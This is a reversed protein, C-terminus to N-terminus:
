NHVVEQLGVCNQAASGSDSQLRYQAAKAKEVIATLFHERKNRLVQVWIRPWVLQMTEVVISVLEPLLMWKNSPWHRPQALGDALPSTQYDISTSDLCNSVFRYALRGGVVLFSRKALQFL